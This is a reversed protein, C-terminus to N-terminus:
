NQSWKWENIPAGDQILELMLNDAGLEKAKIRIYEFVTPSYPKKLLRMGAELPTKNAKKQNCTSCATVCNTWSTKGGRSEPIIHDETLFVEITKGEKTVIRKKIQKKFEEGCYGCTYNDRIFLNKKSYLIERKHIISVMSLLRLIKPIPLTNGNALKVIKDNYYKLVEAKGRQLLSFAKRFNTKQHFTFDSNLIAIEM